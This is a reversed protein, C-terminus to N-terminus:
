SFFGGARSRAKSTSLCLADSHVQLIMNSENCRMSSVPHTAVCNLLQKIKTLTKKTGISHEASLDSLAALITSDIAFDYYLLTGIVRQMFKKDDESLKLETEDNIPAHQVQASHKPIVHPAPAHQPKTLPCHQFKILANPM